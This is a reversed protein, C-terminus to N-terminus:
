RKPHVRGDSSDRWDRSIGRAARDIIATFSRDLAAAPAMRGSWISLSVSSLQCYESQDIEIGIDRAATLQHEAIHTVIPDM